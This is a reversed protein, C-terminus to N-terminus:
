TEAASASTARADSSADLWALLQQSFAEPHEHFPWHGGEFYRVSGSKCRAASAEASDPQFVPDNRGWLLRTPVEVRQSLKRPDSQFFYRFLARYWNLPASVAGPTRWVTRYRKLLKRDRVGGGRLIGLLLASDAVSFLTEALWPLQFFLIYSSRLLQSPRDFVHSSFVFPHPVNVITLSRVLDPRLTALYWAVAGGWDHGVLHVPGSLALGEIFRAVDSTLQEIRYDAVRSPKSSRGYGRQEPAICRYGREALALMQQEWTFWLDPFGHLFLVPTGAEPGVEGYHLVVDQLDLQNERITSPM